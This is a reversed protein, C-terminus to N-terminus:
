PGGASGAADAYGYFARAMRARAALESRLAMVEQGQEHLRATLYDIMERLCPAEPSMAAAARCTHPTHAVAAAQLGLPACSPPTPAQPLRRHLAGAEWTSRAHAAAAIDADSNQSPPQSPAAHPYGASTTAERAQRARQLAFEEHKRWFDTPAQVASPLQSPPSGCAAPPAMPPGLGAGLSIGRDHGPLSAPPLTPSASSRVAACGPSMEMSQFSPMSNWVGGALPFGLASADASASPRDTVMSVSMHSSQHFQPLSSVVEGWRSPEASAGRGSAGVASGARPRREPSQAFTTQRLRNWDPSQPALNNGHQSPGAGGAPGGHPRQEALLPGALRADVGAGAAAAAAGPLREGGRVATCAPRRPPTSSRPPEFM